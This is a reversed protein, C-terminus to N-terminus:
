PRCHAGASARDPGLLRGSSFRMLRWLEVRRATVTLRQETLGLLAECDRRAADLQPLSILNLLQGDGRALDRKLLRANGVKVRMGVEQREGALAQGGQLFAVLQQEAEHAVEIPGLAQGFAPALTKLIRGALEREDAAQEVEEGAGAGHHSTQQFKSNNVARSVM